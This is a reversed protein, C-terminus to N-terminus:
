CATPSLFPQHQQGFAFFCPVFCILNWRLRALLGFRQPARVFSFFKLLITQYQTDMGTFRKLSGHLPPPRVICAISALTLLQYSGHVFIAFFFLKCCLTQVPNCMNRHILALLAFLSEPIDGAGAVKPKLARRKVHM